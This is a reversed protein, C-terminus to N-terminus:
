KAVEWRGPIARWCRIAGCYRILGASKLLALARGAKRTSLREVGIAGLMVRRVEIPGSRNRTCVQIEVLLDELEESRLIGANGVHWVKGKLNEPFEQYREVKSM